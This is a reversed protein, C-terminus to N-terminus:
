SISGNASSQMIELSRFYCRALHWARLWLRRIFWDGRRPSPQTAEHWHRSLFASASFSSGWIRRHYWRHISERSISLRAAPLHIMFHSCRRSIREVHQLGAPLGCPESSPPTVWFWGPPITVCIASVCCSRLTLSRWISNAASYMISLSGLLFRF